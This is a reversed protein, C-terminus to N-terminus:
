DLIDVFAPCAAYWHLTWPRLRIVRDSEPSGCKSILLKVPKIREDTADIIGGKEGSGVLHTEREQCALHLAAGRSKIDGVSLVSVTHSKGDSTDDLEIFSYLAFLLKM